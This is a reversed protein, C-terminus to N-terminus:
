EKEGEKLNNFLHQIMSQRNLVGIMNGDEEVGIQDQESLAELTERLSSTIPISPIRKLDVNKDTTLSLIEEL